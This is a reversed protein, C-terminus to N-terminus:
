RRYTTRSGAAPGLARQRRSWPRCAVAILDDSSLRRVGVVVVANVPPKEGAAPAPTREIRHRGSVLPEAEHADPEPGEVYVAQPPDAPGCKAPIATSDNAPSKTGINRM